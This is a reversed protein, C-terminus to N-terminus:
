DQGYLVITVERPGHVGVVLTKEIDATRSPGCVAIMRGEGTFRALADGFAAVLADPTAHAVLARASLIPRLRADAGFLVVTASEAVVADPRVHATEASTSEAPPTEGPGARRVAVTSAGAAAALRTALDAASM